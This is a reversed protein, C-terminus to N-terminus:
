FHDDYNHQLSDAMEKIVTAATVGDVKNGMLCVLRECNWFYDRFDSLFTGVKWDPICVFNGWVGHGIIIRISSRSDIFIEFFAGHDHVEMLRASWIETKKGITLKCKFDMNIFGKLINKLPLLV